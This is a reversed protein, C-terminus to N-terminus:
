MKAVFGSQPICLLITSTLPHNTHKYPQHVFCKQALPALCVLVTSLSPVSCARPCRASIVESRQPSTRVATSTHTSYMPLFLRPSTPLGTSRMLVRSSGRRFVRDFCSHTMPLGSTFCSAILSSFSTASKYSPEAGCCVVTGAADAEAGAGAGADASAGAGAGRGAGAGQAVSGRPWQFLLRPHEGNHLLSAGVSQSGSSTRTGSSIFRLAARPWADRVLDANELLQRPIYCFPHFQFLVSKEQRPKPPSPTGRLKRLRCALNDLSRSHRMECEECAKVVPDLGRAVLSLSVKRSESQEDAVHPRAHAGELHLLNHEQPQVLPTDRLNRRVVPDDVPLLRASIPASLVSVLHLVLPGAIQNLDVQLHHHCRPISETLARQVTPLAPQCYRMGCLASLSPSLALRARAPPPDCFTYLVLAYTPSLARTKKKKLGPTRLVFLSTLQM